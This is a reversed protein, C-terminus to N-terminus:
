AHHKVLPVALYSFEVKKRTVVMPMEVAGGVTVFEIGQDLDAAHINMATTFSMTLMVKAAEMDLITVCPVYGEVDLVSAKNNLFAPTYYMTPRIEVPVVLPAEKSQLLQVYNPLRREQDTAKEWMSAKLEAVLLQINHTAHQLPTDMDHM